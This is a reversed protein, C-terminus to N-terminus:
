RSRRWSEASLQELEEGYAADFDRQGAGEELFAQMHSMLVLGVAHVADHRSLGEAQLRKLTERVPMSTGMAAQNEVIVHITAHLLANPLRVNSDRHFELVLEVREGEDAALWCDPDPATEPDYTELDKM